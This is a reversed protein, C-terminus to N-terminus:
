KGYMYRFEGEAKLPLGAAWSPPSTMIDHLIEKCNGEVVIEDHVMMFAKLGENECQQLADRLLDNAIAQCINETAIIHSLVIRPWETKDRSPVVKTNKHTVAAIMDGDWPPQVFEYRPELYRLYRGSPLQIWLSDGDAEFACKGAKFETHPQRVANHVATKIDSWLKVEKPHTARYGDILKQAEADTFNIGYATAMAQVAGKGGGFGAALIVIKSAQRQDKAVEDISCNFIKCALVKYADVDNKYDDLAQQNDAIWALVVYEISSYDMVTMGDNRYISPRVLYALTDAPNDIAEGAIVKEILELAEEDDYIPRKMNQLQVLKSSARGTTASNFVFAGYIKNNVHSRLMADYKSLTSNGAEYVLDLYERVQPHLDTFESLIDRNPKSFSPRGNLMIAEKQVDTLLPTIFADREKRATITTIKGSTLAALKTKVDAKIEEALKVAAQAFEIDVLIGRQNMRIVNRYDQWEQASLPRLCSSVLREVTVDDKCYELFKDQDEKPIDEWLINKASYNTILKKGEASKGMPTGLARAQNELSAPLSNARGQAATCFIQDISLDPLDKYHHKLVTNWIALEFEANFAYVPRYNFVHQKLEEPFVDGFVWIKPAEDDFAYALCYIGTSPDNAYKYLGDTILNIDSRTEFDISAKNYYKM